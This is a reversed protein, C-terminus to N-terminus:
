AYFCYLHHVVDIKHNYRLYPCRDICCTDGYTHISSHWYLCPAQQQLNSYVYVLDMHLCFRLIVFIFDFCLYSNWPRNTIKSMIEVNEYLATNEITIISPNSFILTGARLLNFLTSQLRKFHQFTDTEVESIISFHQKSSSTLNFITPMKSNNRYITILLINIILMYHAASNMEITCHCIHLKRQWGLPPPSVTM